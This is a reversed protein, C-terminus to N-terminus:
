YKSDLTKYCEAPPGTACYSRRYTKWSDFVWQMGEPRLLIEGEFVYTSGAPIAKLNSPLPTGQALSELEDPRLEEKRLIDADPAAEMGVGVIVNRVKVTHEKWYFGDAV